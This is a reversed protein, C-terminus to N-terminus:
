TSVIKKLFGQPTKIILAGDEDIGCCTGSTNQNKVVIQTGLGYMKKLWERRLPPFGQSTWLSLLDELHQCLLPLFDYPELSVGLDKLSISPFGEGCFPAELLNLGMGGVAWNVWHDPTARSVISETEILVGGIKAERIMLDNPWKFFIGEFPVLVQLSRGMALALLFSFAGCEKVQCRPRLILSLYLNGLPSVWERGRRGRGKTQKSAIVLTKHPAGEKALQHAKDMTNELVDFSYLTYGLPLPTPKM